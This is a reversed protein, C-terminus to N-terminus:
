RRKHSYMKDVMIEGEYRFSWITSLPLEKESLVAIGDISEFGLLADNNM